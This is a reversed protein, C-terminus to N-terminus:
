EEENADLIADVMDAKKMGHLNLGFTEGLDELEANTMKSLTKADLESEKVQGQGQYGEIPKNPAPVKAEGRKADEATAERAPQLKGRDYGPVVAAGDAPRIFGRKVWLGPNPWNEAEPVSQGPQRIEIKGPGVQVKISKVAVYM